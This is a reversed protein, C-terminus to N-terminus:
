IPNFRILQRDQHEFFGARVRQGIAVGPTAHGMLRAGEALEVIVLTYPM